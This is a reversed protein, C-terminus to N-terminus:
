TRVFSAARLWGTLPLMMALALLYSSTAWQIASLSAHLETRLSSLSVQGHDHEAAGHLRRGRHGCHDELHRSRATPKVAV